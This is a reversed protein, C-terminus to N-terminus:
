QKPTILSDVTDNGIMARGNVTDLTYTEAIDKDEIKKAAGNTTTIIVDGSPPVPWAAVYNPKLEGGNKDEPLKGEKAQYMMIASDITRLDAVIKAGRASATADMFRPIAIGALIGLIAIVVVLEVLTFGKNNKFFNM